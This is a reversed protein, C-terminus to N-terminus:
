CKRKKKSRFYFPKKTKTFAGLKFGIHYKLFTKELYQKGFHISVPIFVNLYNITTTRKNNLDTILLNESIINSIYQEVEIEKFYIHKLTSRAM